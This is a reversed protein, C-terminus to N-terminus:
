WNELSIGSGTALPTLETACFSTILVGKICYLQYRGGFEGVIRCPLHSSGMFRSHVCVHDGIKMEPRFDKTPSPKKEEIPVHQKPSPSRSPQVPRSPAPFTEHERQPFRKRLSLPCERKHTRGSSGCTCQGGFTLSESESSPAAAVSSGEGDSDMIAASNFPCDRHTTRKHTSSGCASCMIKAKTKAKSQKDEEHDSVCKVYTHDRSHKKTWESCRFGEQTRINKLEIRRKKVPTTQARKLYRKRGLSHTELAEQAGEFIPLGM